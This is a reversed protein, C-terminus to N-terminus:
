VVSNVDVSEVRIIEPVAEQIAKEVGVKFTMKNMSCFKCAGLLEVRVVYDNTVEILEVDGGDEQLFPRIGDLATEIKSKLLNFDKM